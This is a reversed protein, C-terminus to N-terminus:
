GERPRALKVLLRELVMKAPLPSAGKLGTDAEILWDYLRELRRLGLHRVLQETGNRAAPFNPVKVRDMADRLSVGQRSLRTIQAVQRLRYALGGLTKIPDEGSELLRELMNVAGTRDGAAVADLIRFAEAVASRGVLQEVDAVGIGPRDGAAVALKALEQDLQGMATGVLEVLLQAAPRDLTKGHRSKAWDACWDPQRADPPAKCLITAADPLLKALKTNAPWTKVELVLVGTASPEAFYKGLADRSRTVFPDAQEVVVLRRDGVFPATCLENRVATFEAKDGAFTSLAFDPDADGLVIAQIAAVAQRKLFDEDGAVAYVPQPKARASKALFALCDM